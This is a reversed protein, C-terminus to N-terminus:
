YLLNQFLSKLFINNKKLIHFFKVEGRGSFLYNFQDRWTISNLHFKQRETAEKDTKYLSNNFAIILAQSFFTILFLVWLGRPLNDLSIAIHTDPLPPPTLKGPGPLLPSRSTTDWSRQFLYKRICSSHSIM